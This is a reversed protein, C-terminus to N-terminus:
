SSRPRFAARPLRAARARADTPLPRAGRAHLRVPALRAPGVTRGRWRVAGIDPVVLGFICRMATTKGAGNPGLFGLVRGPRAELNLGDLAVIEGFRKSLRDLELGRIDARSRTSTRSAGRPDARLRDATSATDTVAGMTILARVRAPRGGDALVVAISAVIESTRDRRGSVKYVTFVWLPGLLVSCARVERRARVEPTRGRRAPGVATLLGVQVQPNEIVDPLRHPPAHHPPTSM